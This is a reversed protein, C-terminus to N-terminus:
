RTAARWLVVDGTALRAALRTGDPSLRSFLGAASLQRRAPPFLRDIENANLTGGSLVAVEGSQLLAIPEDADAPWALDALPEPTHILRCSQAGPATLQVIRVEQGATDAVLPRNPAFAVIAPNRLYERTSHNRIRRRSWNPLRYVFGDGIAYSGDPSFGIPMNRWDRKPHLLRSARTAFDALRVERRSVFLVQTGDVSVAVSEGM